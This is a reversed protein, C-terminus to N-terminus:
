SWNGENNYHNKALAFGTLKGTYGVFTDPYNGSHQGSTAPIATRINEPIPTRIDGSCAPQELLEELQALLYTLKELV